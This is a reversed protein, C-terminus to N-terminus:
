AGFQRNLFEVSREHAVEAAGSHHNAQEPNYFAHGAGSYVHFESEPYTAEIKRITEIPLIHDEDGYHMLTPCRLTRDLHDHVDTGYFIVAADLDLEAASIFAWTGGTCFGSIAVKGATPRLADACASVDALVTPETLNERFAMGGLMGDHDYAFVTNRGARDYLAPAMAAYGDHAFEDCVDGLHTTLGYIAQLFIIGGKVEGAPDSRWADLSHGDSATLTVREVM